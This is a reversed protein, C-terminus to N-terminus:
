LLVLCLTQLLNLILFFQSTSLFKYTPPSLQRHVLSSLSMNITIHFCTLSNAVSTFHMVTDLLPWLHRSLEDGFGLSLGQFAGRAGSEAKGPPPGVPAAVQLDGWENAEEDGWENAM